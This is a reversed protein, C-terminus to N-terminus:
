AARRAPAGITSTGMRKTSRTSPSDFIDVKMTTSASARTVRHATWRRNPERRPVGWTTCVQHGQRSGAPRADEDDVVLGVDGVDYGRGQGELPEGGLLGGRRDVGQGMGPGAPEVADDEVDHQGVAVAEVDAPRQPSLLDVGRDEEQGGPVFGRVLQGPEDVAVVVHRLREADVLQHGPDPGDQM